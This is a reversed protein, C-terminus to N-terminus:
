RRRVVRIRRVQGRRVPGSRSPAPRRRFRDRGERSRGPWRGRCGNRLPARCAVPERLWPIPPSGAVGCRQRHLDADPVPHHRRPDKVRDAPHPSAVDRPGRGPPRGARPKSGAAQITAARACTIHGRSPIAWQFAAV